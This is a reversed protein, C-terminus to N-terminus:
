SYQRQPSQFPQLFPWFIPNYPFSKRDIAAIEDDVSREAKSFKPGNTGFKTFTGKLLM